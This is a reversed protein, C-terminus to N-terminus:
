KKLALHRSRRARHGRKPGPKQRRLIRGLNQELTALFEEEGLPRGTREHARLLKTDEEPIARTLFGRWNPVLKTLPGVRVLADDRGRVHAAASSWKYRSPANILGARVPNLEVYRAATLLYGDDLV